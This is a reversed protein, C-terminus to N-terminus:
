NGNDERMHPPMAPQQGTPYRRRVHGVWGSTEGNSPDRVPIATTDVSFESGSATVMAYRGSFERKEEVASDWAERVRERDYEAICNTWGWGIVDKISRETWRLYTANSHTCAGSFDAEFIGEDTNEVYARFTAGLMRVDRAARRTEDRMSGGGNPTLEARILRISEAMEAARGIGLATKISAVAKPAFRKMGAWVVPLLLPISALLLTELVRESM